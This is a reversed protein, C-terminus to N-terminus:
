FADQRIDVRYALCYGDILRSDDIYVRTRARLELGMKGAAFLRDAVDTALHTGDCSVTVWNAGCLPLADQPDNELAFMCGGFGSEVTMIQTIRGEVKATAAIAPLTISSSLFVGVILWRTWFTPYLEQRTVSENTAKALKEEM